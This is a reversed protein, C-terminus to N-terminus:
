SSSSTRHALACKGSNVWNYRVLLALTSALSNAMVRIQGLRGWALLGAWRFGFGLWNFGFSFHALQRELQQSFWGMKAKGRRAHSKAQGSCSLLTVYRLPWSELAPLFIDSSSLKLSAPQLSLRHPL